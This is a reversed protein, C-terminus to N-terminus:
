SCAGGDGCWVLFSILHHCLVFSLDILVIIVVVNVIVISVALLFHCWTVLRESAAPARM